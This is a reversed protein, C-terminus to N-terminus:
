NRFVDKTKAVIHGKQNIKVKVTIQNDQADFFRIFIINFRRNKDLAKEPISILFKEEKADFIGDSPLFYEWNEANLSYYARTILSTSDEIVGEIRIFDGMKKAKTARVVPSTNDITVISSIEETIKQDEPTNTLEDSVTLKIQYDGDPLIRTDLKFQNDYIKETLPLWETEGKERFFLQFVLRDEDSDYANWRLNLIFPPDKKDKSGYEARFFSVSPARNELLYPQILSELVPTAM